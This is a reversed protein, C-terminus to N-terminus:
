GVVTGAENVLQSTAAQELMAIFEQVSRIDGLSEASISLNYTNVVQKPATVIDLYGANGPTIAGATQALVNNAMLGLQAELALQQSKLGEIYAQMADVGQQYMSDAVLSGMADAAGVLGTSLGNLQEIGAAGQDLISQALAMSEPGAEALQNWLEESLGQEKLAVLVGQFETARSTTEGLLYTLQDFSQADAVKGLGLVLDRSTRYQEQMRGTLDDFADSAVELRRTLASYDLASQTLAGSLRKLTDAAKTYGDRTLLVIQDQLRERFTDFNGALAAQMISGFADGFRVQTSQDRELQRAAEAAADKAKTSSSKGSSKGGSSGGSSPLKLTGGSAAQKLLDQYQKTLANLRREYGDATMGLSSFSAEAAARLRAIEMAVDYANTSFNIQTGKPIGAIMQTAYGAVGAMGEMRLAAVLSAESLGGAAVVAEWAAESTKGLAGTQMDAAFAAQYAKSVVQEQAEALYESNVGLAALAEELKRAQDELEYMSGYLEGVSKDSEALAEKNNMFADRQAYLADIQEQISLVYEAYGGKRIAEAVGQFGGLVELQAVTLGEVAAAATNAEAGMSQLLEIAASMDKNAADLAANYSILSGGLGVLAGAIAGIILGPVSFPAGAAAGALLGGGIAEFFGAAAAGADDGAQAVRRFGDAMGALGVGQVIGTFQKLNLKSIGALASSTGSLGAAFARQAEAAASVLSSDMLSGFPVRKLLQSAVVAIGVAVLVDRFKWATEVIGILTKAATALAEGFDHMMQVVEPDELVELFRKAQVTLEAFLPEGAAALQQRVTDEINSMVGLYTESQKEMLGGFKDQMGAVLAPVAQSAQVLGKSVADQIESVSVGYAQALMEWGGIGAETLQLMEQSQVKGKAWMQGLALNIKAISEEGRGLAAAANGTAELLERSQEANFGMAILQQSYRVLNDYQFPTEKAFDQIWQMQDSAAQSSGLLTAFGIEAQELQANFNVMADLASSFAGQIGQVGLYMAGLAAASKLAGAATGSLWGQTSANTRTVADNIQNIGPVASRAAAGGMAQGLAQGGQAGLQQGAARIQGAGQQVIGQGFGRMSPVLAIYASAIEGAM